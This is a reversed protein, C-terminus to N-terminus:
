AQTRQTLRKLTTAMSEVKETGVLLKRGSNLYITIFSKGTINMRLTNTFPNLRHGISFRDIINVKPNFDISQIESLTIKRWSWQIPFFKYHLGENDIRVQFRVYILLLLIPTFGFASLLLMAFDKDPVNPLLFILPIMPVMMLIFLAVWLWRLNTLRQEEEFFIHAM